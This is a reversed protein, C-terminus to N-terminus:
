NSTLVKRALEWAKKDFSTVLNDAVSEIPYWSIGPHSEATLSVKAHIKHHTITHKFTGIVKPLAGSEVALPFGRTGKLLFSDSTRQAIGVLDNKRPINVNLRVMQWIKAEGAKPIENQLSRAYGACDPRIPCVDCAPSKTKCVQQGLEMIAQNFSGPDDHDIMEAAIRKIQKKVESDRLAGKIAFLRALVREWNADVAAIPNNFAISTVAAATYPGIGPADLWTQMENPFTTKLTPLQAFYELTRKLQKFRRYYGLGSCMRLIEEESAESLTKADPFREIFKQFKPAVAAVTTQQLM